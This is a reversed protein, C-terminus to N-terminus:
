TCEMFLSYNLYIGRAPDRHLHGFGVNQSGIPPAQALDSSNIFSLILGFAIALFFCLDYAFWRGDDDGTGVAAVVFAVVFAVVVLQASEQGREWKPVMAQEGHINALGDTTLANKMYSIAADL